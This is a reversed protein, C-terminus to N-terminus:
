NLMYMYVLLFQVIGGIKKITGRVYALAVVNIPSKLVM